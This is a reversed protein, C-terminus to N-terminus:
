RCMWGRCNEEDDRWDRGPFAVCDRSPGACCVATAGEPPVRSAVPPPAAASSQAHRRWRDREPVFSRGWPVIPSRWRVLQPETVADEGPAHQWVDPIEARDPGVVYHLVEHPRLGYDQVLGLAVDRPLRDAFAATDVVLLDTAFADFDFAHRAHATRRLESSLRTAPGLRAAADHLLHFGARARAVTGPPQSRVVPLTWGPLSRWTM